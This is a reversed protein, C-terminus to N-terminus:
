GFTRALGMAVSIIKASDILKHLWSLFIHTCIMDMNALFLPLVSSDFFSCFPCLNDYDEVQSHLEHVICRFIYGQILKGAHIDTFVIFLM